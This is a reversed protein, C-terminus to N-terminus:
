KLNFRSYNLNLDKAKLPKEDEDLNDEDEENDEETYRDESFSSRLESVFDHNLSAKDVHKKELEKVKPKTKFEVGLVEEVFPIFRSLRKGCIPYRNGAFTVSRDENVIFGSDKFGWKHGWNTNNIGFKGSLFPGVVLPIQSLNVLASSANFGITYIFALQNSRQFYKESAM